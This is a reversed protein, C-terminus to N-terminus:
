PVLLIQGPRLDSTRLGNLDQIADV